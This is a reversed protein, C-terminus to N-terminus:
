VEIIRMPCSPPQGGRQTTTADTQEQKPKPEPQRQPAVPEINKPQWKGSVEVKPNCSHAECVDADRSQPLTTTADTGQSVSIYEGRKADFTNQFYPKQEPPPEDKWKNREEPKSYLGYTREHEVDGLAETAMRVADEVSVYPFVEKPVASDPNCNYVNFGEAEFYPKLQPFYENILRKYTNNNCNVAGKNRQEDFHYTQTESMKLDCGLLYVNRFGLLFIVRLASLMVSRCGGYDKHNGWNVCDEFLFRQAVFKENRRIGIVNPCDGVLMKMDEWKENDFMRKEFHAMPVVKTICPDLWISKMFRRPDDVCTWFNPRFTKPGNNIGFTVVGPKRLLNHDVNAFSPGNCILFISAGRYHGILNLQSAERTFFMPAPQYFENSVCVGLHRGRGYRLANHDESNKRLSKIRM